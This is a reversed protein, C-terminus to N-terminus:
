PNPASVAERDGLFELAYDIRGKNRVPLLGVAMGSVPLTASNGNLFLTGSGSRDPLSSGVKLNSELFRGALDVAAAEALFRGDLL